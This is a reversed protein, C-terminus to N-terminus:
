FFAQLGRLPLSRVHGARAPAPDSLLAHKIRGAQHKDVLSRDAGVHHPQSAASARPTRNIPRTGSPSHFVIVKTAAKRWLLIVAGM